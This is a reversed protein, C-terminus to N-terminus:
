EAGIICWKPRQRLPCDKEWARRMSMPLIVKSFLFASTHFSEVIKDIGPPRPGGRVVFRVEPPQLGHGQRPEGGRGPLLQQPRYQVPGPLQPRLHLHDVARHVAGQQPRHEGLLAGPHIPEGQQVGPGRVVQPGQAPRVQGGRLLMEGGGALGQGPGPYEVVPLLLDVSLVHVKGRRPLRRFAQHPLQHLLPGPGYRPPLHVPKEPRGRYLPRHVEDGLHRPVDGPPHKQLAPRPRPLGGQQLPHGLRGPLGPLVHLQVVAGQVRPAQVQHRDPPRSEAHQVAGRGM